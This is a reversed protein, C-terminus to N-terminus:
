RVLVPSLASTTSSTAFPRDVRHWASSTNERAILVTWRLLGPNFAPKVSKIRERDRNPPKLSLGKIYARWASPWCCHWCFFALRYCNVTARPTPEPPREKLFEIRKWRSSEKRFGARPQSREGSPCYSAAAPCAPSSNKETRSLSSEHGRSSSDLAIHIVTYDSPTTRNQVDRRCTKM